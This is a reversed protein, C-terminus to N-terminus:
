LRSISKTRWKKSKSHWYEISGNPRIYGPKRWTPNSSGGKWLNKNTSAEEIHVRWASIIHDIHAKNDVDLNNDLRELFKQFFNGKRLTSSGMFGLIHANPFTQNFYNASKIQLSYCGSIIILKPTNSLFELWMDGLKMGMVETLDIGKNSELSPRFEGIHGNNNVWHHGTFVLVKSHSIQYFTSGHVVKALGLKDSLLFRAYRSWPEGERVEFLADSM